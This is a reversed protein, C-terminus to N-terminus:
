AAALTFNFEAGTDVESNVWVKQEHLDLIKRVIALGLGAHDNSRDRTHAQHFREFVLKQQAYPIGKGTDSVRILIRGDEPADVKVQITGSEGTYYIANGILNDLVREILGLDALVLTNNSVSDVKVTIKKEGTRISLKNVVDYILEMIPFKELVPKHERADLKALELLDDILIHLRRSQRIAISLYQNKQETDLDDGKLSLTELYGEISTLPTRLDHSINAVMERRLKDQQKLAAWQDTICASMRAVDYHLEDIEDGRMTLHKGQSLISPKQFDSAVFDRVRKKLTRLRLTMRNFIYLGMALGLLLSGGLVSGGLTMMYNHSQSDHAATYREGLLVVYLYGKPNQRNPIPTVSFPKQLSEGRPDDGLLPYVPSGSLFDRIPELNIRERKVKGPEASYALIKGQLDIYYIEIDPNISMYMMFTDKMANKDITEGKVIKNDLVLTRALNQNLVQQTSQNLENALFGAFLTYALGVLILIIALGIALKAYFTRFVPIDM